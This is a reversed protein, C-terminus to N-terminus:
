KPGKTGGPGHGPKGEPRGPPSATAAPASPTPTGATPIPSDPGCESPAPSVAHVYGRSAPGSPEGRDAPRGFLPAEPPAIGSPCRHVAGDAVGGGDTGIPGGRSM